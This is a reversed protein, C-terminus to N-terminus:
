LLGLAAIFIMITGVALRYYAFPKLSHKGLFSLFRGVVLFAVAFSAIFGVALALGETATMAGVGKVLSYGTAAFMTPIALFFSFEAAAKASLGVMLGGLITSASRSMGPFLSLCQALGILFSKKAGVKLMDNYKATRVLKEVVLILLAGVIMAIAVTLPSFLYQEVFDNTLLGLVASPVFAILMWLWLRFGWQGPKLNKLSELIRKWYFVVVALIAGLQIVIEFTVAFPGTFDLFHGFVILHGTSSIPLFETIGEVIGLIIAKLILDM